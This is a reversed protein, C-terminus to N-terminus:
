VDYRHHIVIIAENGFPMKQVTISHCFYGGPYDCDRYFRSLYAEELESVDVDDELGKALLYEDRGDIGHSIDGIKQVKYKSLTQMILGETNLFHCLVHGYAGM